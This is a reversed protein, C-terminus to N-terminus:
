QLVLERPLVMAVKSASSGTATNGYTVTGSSGQSALYLLALNQDNNDEEEKCSITFALLSALVLSTLKKM